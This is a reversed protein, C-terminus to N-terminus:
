ILDRICPVPTGTGHVTGREDAERAGLRYLQRFSPKGEGDFILIAAENFFFYNARYPSLHTTKVALKDVLHYPKGTSPDIGEKPDKPFKAFKFKERGRSDRIINGRGDTLPYKFNDLDFPYPVFSEIRRTQPEFGSGTRQGKEFTAIAFIYLDMPNGTLNQVIFQVELIEGRGKYDILKNFDVNKIAFKNSYQSLVPISMTTRDQRKTEKRADGRSLVIGPLLLLVVTGMLRKMGVM